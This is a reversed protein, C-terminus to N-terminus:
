PVRFPLAARGLSTDPLTQNTRWGLTKANPWTRGHDGVRRWWMVYKGKFSNGEGIAGGDVREGIGVRPRREQQGEVGRRDVCM